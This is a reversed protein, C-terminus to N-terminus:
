LGLIKKMQEREDVDIPWTQDPDDWDFFPIFYPDGKEQVQDIIGSRRAEIQEIQVDEEEEGIDERDWVGEIKKELGLHELKKEKVFAEFEAREKEASVKFAGWKDLPVVWDVRRGEEFENSICLCGYIEGAKWQWPGLQRTRNWEDVDFAMNLPDRMSNPITIVYKGPAGKMMDTFQFTAEVGYANTKALDFSLLKAEGILDVGLYRCRRWESYGTKRNWPLPGAWEAYATASMALVLLWIKMKM